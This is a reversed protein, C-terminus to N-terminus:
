CASAHSYYYSGRQYVLPLLLLVCRSASYKLYFSSSSPSPFVFPKLCSVFFISLIIISKLKVDLIYSDVVVILLSLLSSHHYLFIIIISSLLFYIIIIIFFYYLFFFFIINYYCDDHFKKKIM